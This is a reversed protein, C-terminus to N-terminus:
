FVPTFVSKLSYHSTNKCFTVMEERKKKEWLGGRGGEEKRQEQPQPPIGERWLM